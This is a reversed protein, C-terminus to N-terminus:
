KSERKIYIYKYEVSFFFTQHSIFLTWSWTKESDSGPGGKPFLCLELFSFFTPISCTCITTFSVARREGGGRREAVALLSRHVFVSNFKHCQLAVSFTLYLSRAKRREKKDWNVEGRAGLHLLKKETTIRQIQIPDKEVPLDMKRALFCM